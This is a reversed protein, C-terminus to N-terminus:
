MRVVSEIAYTPGLEEFSRQGSALLAACWALDRGHLLATSERSAYERLLATIDRVEDLGITDAVATLTGNDATLIYSGSTTRAACVLHETGTAPDVASVFVTGAPWMPVVAALNESARRIDFGPVAHSLDYVQLDADVQKCVGYLNSTGNGLGFDSQLVINKM